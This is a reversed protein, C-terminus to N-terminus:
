AKRSRESGAIVSACGSLLIAAMRRLSAAARSPRFGERRLSNPLGSLIRRKKFRWGSSSAAKRCSFVCKTESPQALRRRWRTAVLKTVYADLIQAGRGADRRAEYCATLRTIQADYDYNQLLHGLIEQTFPSTASNLTLCRM